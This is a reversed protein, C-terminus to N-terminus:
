IVSYYPFTIESKDIETPSWPDTGAAIVAISKYDPKGNAIPAVALGDFGTETDSKTAVVRFEQGDSTTITNTKELDDPSTNEILNSNVYTRGNRKAFELNVSYVAYDQNLNNLQEDTYSFTM